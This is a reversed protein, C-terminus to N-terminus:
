AAVAARQVHRPRARHAARGRVRQHEYRAPVDSPVAAGDGQQDAGAPRAPKAVVARHREVRRGPRGRHADTAAPRLQRGHGAAVDRDPQERRRRHRRPQLHAGRRRRPDHRRETRRRAAAPVAAHERLRVGPPRHHANPRHRQAGAAGPYREPRQGHVHRARCGSVVGGGWLAGGISGLTPAGSESLTVRASYLDATVEHLPAGGGNCVLAQTVIRCMVGLFLSSTSLGTFTVPSQDNPKDCHISSGSPFPWPIKCQELPSGDAQFLGSIMDSDVYSHLSRYYSIATITTGAPANLTWGARSGDPINAPSNLVDEAYLAGQHSGDTSGIAPGGCLNGTALAAPFTNTPAWLGPSSTPSCASVVYSGALAPCAGAGLSAALTAALTLTNRITRNM